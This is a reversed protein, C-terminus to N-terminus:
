LSSTSRPLRVTFMAGEGPASKAEVSGGHAGVIAKVLSLGLGLGKESRSRDSRYLRDWIRPLDEEAIGIGNDQVHLLTANPEHEVSLTVYGGAPTYKVANDLLNALAQRMHQPDVYVRKAGNQHNEVHVELTVEKEEAVFQYLDAVDRLLREPVMAERELSLAGTEAESVDMLTDLMAIVSDSADVVGALVDRYDEETREGQLALEARGRLWTMPTRLDHAVDDLTNKTGGLLTEIRALMQNFLQVLDAFTGHEDDESIRAGVNGTDIVTRFTEVLRRLPRLARYALVLGGLLALLLVPLAIALFVSRISELADERLDADMGVQLVGGDSLRVAFAEIADDDEATGLEIWTESEPPPQQELQRIEPRQWNDPNFLIVTRGDSDVLRVILEERRETPDPDTLERKLAAIQGREYAQALDYAEQRMFARDPERLFHVFLAYTLIALVGTSALFLLAYGAVLRLGLTQARWKAPLWAPLLRRALRSLRKRFASFM